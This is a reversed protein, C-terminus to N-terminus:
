SCVPAKGSIMGRGLAAWMWHSISTHTYLGSQRQGHPCSQLDTRAGSSWGPDALGARTPSTDCSSKGRGIRSGDGGKWLPQDWPCEKYVDQVSSEAERGGLSSLRHSQGWGKMM